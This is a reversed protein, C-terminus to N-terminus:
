YPEDTSRARAGSFRRATVFAASRGRRLAARRSWGRGLPRTAAPLAAAAAGIYLPHLVDVAARVDPEAGVSSGLGWHGLRDSGLLRRAKRGRRRRRNRPPLDDLATMALGGPPKAEDAYAVVNRTM